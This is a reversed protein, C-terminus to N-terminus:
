NQDPYDTQFRPIKAFSGLIGKIICSFIPKIQVRISSRIERLAEPNCIKFEEEFFPESERDFYNDMTTQVFEKKKRGRFGIVPLSLQAGSHACPLHKM